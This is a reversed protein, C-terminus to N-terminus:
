GAPAPLEEFKAASDAAGALANVGPAGGNGPDGCAVGGLALLTAALAIGLERM